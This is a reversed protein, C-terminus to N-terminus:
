ISGFHNGAKVVLEYIVNHQLGSITISTEKADLRSTGLGLGGFTSNSINENNFDASHWFVRYGEVSNPNKVPPKWSITVKDGLINEVLVNKPPGPLRNNNEQFCSIIPKAYQIACNTISNTVAEGRCWNLCKREVNKQACCNRHDSGDSACKMLKHFDAICEPRDIIAEIDLYFSCADLCTNTVNQIACCESINNTAPSNKRMRVSVVRTVSGLANEAHCFYDGTDEAALKTIKLIMTYSSPDYIDNKLAMDFNASQIVPVRGDHDRWFITKPIPKSKISCKLEVSDGLSAVTIGAAQIKPSFNISIKKSTQM